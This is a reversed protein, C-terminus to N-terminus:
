SSICTKKRTVKKDDEGQERLVRWKGEYVNEAVDEVVYRKYGAAFKLNM